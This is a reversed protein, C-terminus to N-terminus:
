WRRALMTLPLTSLILGFCTEETPKFWHPLVEWRPRCSGVGAVLCLDRGRYRRSRRNQDFNPWLKKRKKLHFSSQDMFSFTAYSFSYSFVLFFLFFFFCLLCMSTDDYWRANWASVREVLASGAELSARTRKDAALALLIHQAVQASM